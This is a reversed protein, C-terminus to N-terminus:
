YFKRKCKKSNKVNFHESFITPPNYNKMVNKSAMMNKELFETPDIYNNM